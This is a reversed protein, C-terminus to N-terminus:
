QGVMPYTEGIKQAIATYFGNLIENAKEQSVGDPEFMGQWSLTARGNGADRVRVEGVYNKVPLPSQQITYNFARYQSSYFALLLHVDGGGGALSNVKTAGLGKGMLKSSAIPPMINESPQHFDVLAWLKDPTTEYTAVVGADHAGAVAPCALAVVLAALTSLKRTIM